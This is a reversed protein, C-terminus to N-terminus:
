VPGSESSGRKLQGAGRHRRMAVKPKESAMTPCTRLNWVFAWILTVEVDSIMSGGLAEFGSGTQRVKAKLRAWERLPDVRAQDFRSKLRNEHLGTV